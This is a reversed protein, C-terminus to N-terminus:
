LGDKAYYYESGIKGVLVGNQAAISAPDFTFTNGLIPNLIVKSDADLCLNELMAKFDAASLVTVGDIDGGYSVGNTSSVGTTIVNKLNFKYNTVADNRQCFDQDNLAVISNIVTIQNASGQFFARGKNNMITSNIVTVYGGSDAAIAGNTSNLITSSEVLIRGNGTASLAGGNTGYWSGATVTNGVLLSRHIELSAYDNVRFAGGGKSGWDSKGNERFVSDNVILNPRFLTNNSNLQTLYVAGGSKATNKEFLSNEILLDGNARLYLAGGENARNNRIESDMITLSCAQDMAIAGGNGAFGNQLISGNVTLSSVHEGYIIAGKGSIKGGSLTMNNLTLSGNQLLHFIRNTNAAASDYTGDDAVGQTETRFLVNQDEAATFTLDYNIKIEETIVIESVGAGFTIEATGLRAAAILAENLTIM